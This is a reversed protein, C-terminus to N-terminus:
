NNNHPLSTPPQVICGNRLYVHLTGRVRAFSFRSSYSYATPLSMLLVWVYLCLFLYLVGVVACVCVSVRDCQIPQSLALEIINFQPWPPPQLRLPSRVRRWKPRKIQERHVLKRIQETKTPPPQIPSKLRIQKKTKEFPM